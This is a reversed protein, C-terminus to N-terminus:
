GGRYMGMLQEWLSQATEDGAQSGTQSDDPATSKLLSNLQDPSGENSPLSGFLKVPFLQKSVGKGLYKNAM